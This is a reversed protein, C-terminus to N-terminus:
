ASSRRTGATPPAHRRQRPRRAVHLLDVRRHRQRDPDHRRALRDARGLADRRDLGDHPPRQRPGRRRQAVPPRALEEGLDGEPRGHRRHRRVRGAPTRHGAERVARPVDPRRGHRRAAPRLPRGQGAHPRARRELGLDPRRDEPRAREAVRGADREHPLRAADPQGDRRHQDLPAPDRRGLRRPQALVRAAGAPGRRVRRRHDSRGRLRAAPHRRRRDDLEAGPLAEPLRGLVVERRDLRRARRLVRAVVRPDTRHGRVLRLRGQLGARAHHGRDHQRAPLRAPGLEHRPGRPLRSRGEGRPRLWGVRAGADRGLDRRRELERRQAQQGRGPGPVRLRARGRRALRGVHHPDRDAVAELRRRRDLGPRRVLRGLEHGPGGVVRHVGRRGASGRPGPHRGAPGVQRRPLVRVRRSLAVGPWRRLRAGVHGRWAPRLRQGAWLAAEDVRRRRLLGAALEDRVRLARHLEPAPLRRVPEGRGPGVQARLDEGPRRADRLERRHQLRVERRQHEEVARRQDRHVLRPRVVPDRPHDAVPQRAGHLRPGHRRPRLDPRRAPRRLRRDVLVVDPLRLGHHLDRRGRGEGVSAEIPYNGIFGTTDYTLQYGKRVRNLESRMTRLFSVFEDSYGSAIPEFDLNVGDAGRDRVAAAIQRALRARAAPSGLVARQVNAQSTTWAFASVTLVVRTGHQHANSIVSTM